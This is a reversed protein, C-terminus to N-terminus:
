GNNRFICTSYICKCSFFSSYVRNNCVLMVTEQLRIIEVLQVCALNEWKTFCEPSLNNKLFSALINNKGCQIFINSAINILHGMYGQRIGNEKNRCDFGSTVIRFKRKCYMRFTGRFKISKVIKSNVRM